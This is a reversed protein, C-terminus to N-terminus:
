AAWATPLGSGLGLGDGDPEETPPAPPTQADTNQQDTGATDEAPVTDPESQSAPGGAPDPAHADGQDSPNPPAEPEPAPATDTPPAQPVETAPPIQDQSPPDAPPPDAVTTKSDSPPAPAVPAIPAAPSSSVTQTPAPDQATPPAPNSPASAPATTEPSTDAPPDAAVVPQTATGAAGAGSSPDTTPADPGATADAVIAVADGPGAPVTDLASSDASGLVLQVARLLQFSQVDNSQVARQITEETVGLTGFALVALRDPLPVDDPLASATPTREEAPVVAMGQDTRATRAHRGQQRENALISQEWQNLRGADTGWLVVRGHQRINQYLDRNGEEASWATASEEDPFVRFGIKEFDYSFTFATSTGVSAESTMVKGDYDVCHAEYPGIPDCKMRGGEAIKKFDPSHYTGAAIREDQSAASSASASAGSSVSRVGPSLWQSLLAGGILAPAAVAAARAWRPPRPRRHAATRVPAPPVVGADPAAEFRPVNRQTAGLRENMEIISPCHTRILDQVHRLSLEPLVRLVSKVASDFSQGPRVFLFTVGEDLKEITIADAQHDEEIVVLESTGIKM